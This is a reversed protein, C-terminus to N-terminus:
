ENDSTHQSAQTERDIKKDGFVTGVQGVILWAPAIAIGWLGFNLYINGVSAM